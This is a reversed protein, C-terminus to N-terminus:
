TATTAAIESWASPTGSDGIKTRQWISGDARHWTQIYYNDSPTSQSTVEAGATSELDVYEIFDTGSIYLRGVANNTIQDSVASNRAVTVNALATGMYVHKPKPHRANIMGAIVSDTPNVDAYVRAWNYTVSESYRFTKNNYPFRLIVYEGYFTMIATEPIYLDLNAIINGSTVPILLMYNGNKYDTNTAIENLASLTSITDLVEYNMKGDLLNNAQAKNYYFEELFSQSVVSGDVFEITVSSADSVDVQFKQTIRVPSYGNYAPMYDACGNKAIAIAYLKETANEDSADKAFLGVETMSYGEALTANNAVVGLELSTGGKILKYNINFAQKQSKLTTRSSLSDYEEDTYIGNGYAIRTFQLDIQNNLDQMIMMQGQSTIKAAKFDAM